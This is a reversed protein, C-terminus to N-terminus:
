GKDIGSVLKKVRAKINEYALSLHAKGNETLLGTHGVVNRVPRYSVADTWLSQSKGGDKKREVSFALDDMGLYSLDNNGKRISFSINAEGKRNAERDRWEQATKEINPKLPVRKDELYKRVLNESLFCDVYASVNFEADDRLEDLWADVQDKAPADKEPRYEDQTATYLDRAKRQKKTKRENEVDGEEGRRLRYKDWDDFIRLLADRKLYDLLAQFNADDEVVGERSSTFPDKGESDMSDFHIQGYIYSEVIRQTPIHKILNKERLRGNVFLDITAREETGTIKLHRPLEVSAVFGKIDLATTLEIKDHKLNGLANLFSDQCNNIDWLFETKQVLDKLDNISVQEDNVFISFEKDILTFRFSLALMKKIHAISNRIQEKTDEFIVITGQPHQDILDSILDFNLGELPYKEPTLDSQIARDLDSNNILGGVYELGQKRSFVSIREACSLLALKGIGKAGIFPRGSASKMGGDKRKSYGIKLFKNQFDDSDMGVGDDRISFTSSERNINIWVNKADADWANSIAEGLVTIFNRYLNRGLHNLVSLSIEFNFNQNDPM